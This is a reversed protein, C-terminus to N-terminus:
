NELRDALDAAVDAPLGRPWWYIGYTQGPMLDNFDARAVGKVTKVKEIQGLLRPLTGRPTEFRVVPQPVFQPDFHVIVTAHPIPNAPPADSVLISAWDSEDQKDPYVEDYVTATGWTFKDGVRLEDRFKVQWITYGYNDIGRHEVSDVTDTLPELHHAYRSHRRSRQTSIGSRTVVDTATWESRLQQQGRGTLWSELRCDLRKLGSGQAEDRLSAGTRSEEDQGDLDLMTAALQSRIKPFERRTYTGPELEAEPDWILIAGSRRDGYPLDRHREQAGFHAEAERSLKREPMKRIADIVLRVLAKAQTDLDDGAERVRRLGFAAPFKDRRAGLEGPLLGCRAIGVLEEALVATPTHRTRTTDPM